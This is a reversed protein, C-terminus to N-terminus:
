AFGMPLLVLYSPSAKPGCPQESQGEPQDCSISPLKWGLYIIVAASHCRRCLIRSIPERLCEM